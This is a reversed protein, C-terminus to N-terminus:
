RNLLDIDLKKGAIHTSDIVHGDGRYMLLSLLDVTNLSALEYYFDIKKIDLVCFDAQKGREFSGLEDGMTLARAGGLTALYFAKVPSVSMDLQAYDSHRMETFMSVSTGAGIDTGLGVVVGADEVNRMPMTGSKLFFNSTPCHAIATKTRAMRNYEGDSLYIAHALITYPGALGTAEFLEFYDSYGPHRQKVLQCEAKTEAIHSHVYAGTSAALRAVEHMLELSCTPAFRPTFAYRLRGNERMHWKECLRASSEISRGTEETFDAPGHQDMMVKGIIARLGALKALEFATHTADKHITSYIAATTTGNLILKKFFRRGVDDVVKSDSFAREAPLIHKDLWEMLTSGFRGRQDLQPLHIHCDVFGPVILRHKFHEVEVDGEGAEFHDFPECSVIRGEEDYVLVGDSLDVMEEPGKTYVIRGRVGRHIKKKGKGESM